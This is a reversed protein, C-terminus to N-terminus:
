ADRLFEIAADLQEGVRSTNYVARKMTFQQTPEQSGPSMARSKIARLYRWGYEDRVVPDRQAEVQDLIERCYCWVAQTQLEVTVLADPCLAQEPMLPFYSVSSWSACGISVGMVGYEVIDPHTFDQRLLSQEVAEANGSSGFIVEPMSILRMATPLDDGSWISETLCYASLVYGATDVSCGRDSLDKSAWDLADNYSKERWRALAAVTPFSVREVIHYLTVGFPYTYLKATEAGPYHVTEHHCALDDDAPTMQCREAMQAVADAGIFTPVFKHSILTFADLDPEEVTLNGFLEIQNLGTDESILERWLKGPTPIQGKEIRIIHRKVSSHTGLPENRAAASSRLRAAMKDHSGRRAEILAHNPHKPKSTAM